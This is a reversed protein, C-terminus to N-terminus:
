VFILVAYGLLIGFLAHLAGFDVLPLQERMQRNILPLLALYNVGFTLSGYPAGAGLLMGARTFVDYRTLGLAVVLLAFIVGYVISLAFHVLGGLAVTSVGGDLADRGQITAATLRAPSTFEGYGRYPALITIGAAMVAGAILGGAIGALWVPLAGM